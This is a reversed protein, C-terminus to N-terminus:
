KKNRKIHWGNQDRRGEESSFGNLLREIYHNSHGCSACVSHIKQRFSFNETIMDHKTDTKCTPCIM